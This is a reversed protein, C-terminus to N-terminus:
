KENTQQTGTEGKEQDTSTCGALVSFTLVLIFPLVYKTLRM